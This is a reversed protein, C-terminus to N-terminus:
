RLVPASAPSPAACRRRRRGRSSARARRAPRRGSRSTAPSRRRPSRRCRAARPARRRRARCARDPAPSRPARRSGARARGEGLDEHHVRNEAADGNRAVARLGHAAVQQRREDRAIDLAAHRQGLGVGAGVAQLEAGEGLGVAVAPPEVPPLDPDRRHRRRVLHQDDGTGPLDLVRCRRVSPM